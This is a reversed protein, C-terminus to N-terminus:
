FGSFYYQYFGDSGYYFLPGCRMKIKKGFLRSFLNAYELLSGIIKNFNNAKFLM